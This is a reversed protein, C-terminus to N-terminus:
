SSMVAQKKSPAFSKPHLPSSVYRKHLGRVGPNIVQTDMFMTLPDLKVECILDSSAIIRSEM